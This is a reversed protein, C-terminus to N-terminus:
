QVKKEEKREVKGTIIANGNKDFEQVKKPRTSYRGGKYFYAQYFFNAFLMFYSLYIVFGFYLSEETQQCFQGNSKVRYVQTAIFCGVVMQSIQLCTITMPFWKPFRFGRARLAYYTYMVAHVNYNMWCFWRAPATYDKFSHWCYVLVTAHHYWHLFNLPRKRLIIFITDILEFAKSYIFLKLWFGSVPITMYGATCISYKFGHTFLVHFFEPSMRIAGLISFIGLALNWLFLPTELDFAQRKEMIKKGFFIVLVYLASITISHHWITQMFQMSPAAAYEDELPLTFTYNYFENSPMRHLTAM